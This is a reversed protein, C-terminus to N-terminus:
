GVQVKMGDTCTCNPKPEPRAAWDATLQVLKVGANAVTSALPFTVARAGPCARTCAVTLPMLALRKKLTVAGARAGSISRFGVPKFM